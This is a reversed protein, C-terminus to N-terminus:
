SQKHVPRGGRYQYLRCKPIWCGHLSMTFLWAVMVSPTSQCPLHWAFMSFPQPRFLPPFPADLYRRTLTHKTDTRYVNLKWFVESTFTTLNKMNIRYWMATKFLHTVSNQSWLALLRIYRLAINIIIKSIISCGWNNASAQPRHVNM